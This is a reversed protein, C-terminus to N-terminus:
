LSHPMSQNVHLHEAPTYSQTTQTTATTKPIPVHAMDNVVSKIQELENKVLGLNSFQELTNMRLQLEDVKMKLSYLDKAIVSSAISQAPLLPM